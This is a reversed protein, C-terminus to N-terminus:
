IASSSEHQNQKELYIFLQHIVSVLDFGSADTFGIDILKQRNVTFSNGKEPRHGEIKIEGTKSYREEYIARVMEAVELMSHYDASAINFLGFGNTDTKLICDLSRGINELHLFNRQQRGSSKLVITGTNFIEQCFCGPVLTWRDIFDTSFPGYVNSPRVVIGALGKERAYMGVYEEGFIHNLGYDNQCKAPTSEDVDGELDTGYVQFTSFFIMKPIKRNVCYELVNRTGLASLEIAEGPRKSLIDNSTATHIVADISLLPLEGFSAQDLVDLKAHTGGTGAPLVPLKGTHRATAMVTHGQSSFFLALYSGIFGSAGTILINM